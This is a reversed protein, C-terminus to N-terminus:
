TLSTLAFYLRWYPDFGTRRQLRYIESESQEIVKSLGKPWGGHAAIERRVGHFMALGELKGRLFAGGRGHRLALVGWLMQAVFVPWGYRFLYRPPYHKAVLLAQNRAMLRVVEKNWAGLTASGEHTAAAAPVYMGFCGQASCRLCFDVDELYSRFREDLLGVKRFLETRFLTATFPAFRILRSRNWLPGDKCGHGARWACGGRCFADFAGDLSDPHSSSRLKGAAFWVRPQKIAQALQELWDPEPEVDNNVIAVLNTRTEKIGRNVAGSFGANRGMEIVRAGAARAADASGDQSGNDVVITEAIAHTQGHLRGLLRELLDRRNWNPVVVTVGSM